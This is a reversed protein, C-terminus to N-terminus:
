GLFLHECVCESIHCAGAEYVFVPLLVDKLQQRGRRLGFNGLSRRLRRYRQRGLETLSQGYARAEGVARQFGEPEQIQGTEAQFVHERVGVGQPVVAETIIPHEIQERVFVLTAWHEKRTM